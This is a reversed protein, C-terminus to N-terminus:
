SEPRENHSSAPCTLWILKLVNEPHHEIVKTERPRSSLNLRLFQELVHGIRKLPEQLLGNAVLELTDFVPFCFVVRFLRTTKQTTGLM